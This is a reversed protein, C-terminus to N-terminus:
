QAIGGATATPILSPLAILEIHWNPLYPTQPNLETFAREM